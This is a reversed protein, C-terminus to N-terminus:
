GRAIALLWLSADAASKAAAASNFHEVAEAAHKWRDALPLSARASLTRRCEHIDDPTLSDSPVGCLMAAVDRLATHEDRIQNVRDFGLQMQGFRSGNQPLITLTIFPDKM